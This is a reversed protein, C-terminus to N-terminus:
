LKSLYELVQETTYGGVERKAEDLEKEDFM